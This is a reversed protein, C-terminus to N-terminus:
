RNALWSEEIPEYEVDNEICFDKIKKMTSLNPISKGIEWRNVTSISVELKKALAEQSYFLKQRMIKISESFMM